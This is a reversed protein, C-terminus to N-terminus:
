CIQCNTGREAKILVDFTLCVASAEMSFCQLAVTPHITHIVMAIIWFLAATWPEFHTQPSGINSSKRVKCCFFWVMWWLGVHVTESHLSRKQASSTEFVICVASMVDMVDLTSCWCARRSHVDYGDSKLLSGSPSSNFDWNARPSFALKCPINFLGVKWSAMQRNAPKESKLWLLLFGPSKIGMSIFM